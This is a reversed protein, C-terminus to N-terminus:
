MILLYIFSDTEQFFNLNTTVSFEHFWRIFEIYMNNAKCQARLEALVLTITVLNPSGFCGMQPHIQELLIELAVNKRNQDIQNITLICFLFLTIYALKNSVRM